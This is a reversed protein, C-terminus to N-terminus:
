ENTLGITGARQLLLKESSVAFTAREVPSSSSSPSLIADEWPRM